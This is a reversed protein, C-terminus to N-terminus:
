TGATSSRLSDRGNLNLAAQLLELQLRELAELAALAEGRRDVRKLQRELRAVAKERGKDEARVIREELIEARFADTAVVRLLV